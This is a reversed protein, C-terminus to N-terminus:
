CWPFLLLLVAPFIAERATLGLERLVLYLAWGCSVGFLAAVALFLHVHQGLAKYQLVLLTTLVPRYGFVPRETSQDLAGILGPERAFHVNAVNQWDDWYLGGHAVQPGFVLATLLLLVLATLVLERKAPSRAASVAPFGAADVPQSPLIGAM